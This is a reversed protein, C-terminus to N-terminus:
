GQMLRRCARALDNLTSCPVMPCIQSMLDVSHIYGWKQQPIPNLWLVKGARSKATELARIARPLDITKTDSLILLTTAPGLAPPRMACLHELATGLDTGKGFLGTDRVYGRFSEMDQLAFTDVEQVKESFLFTRSSESVDAMSKIFRLAFESFQLMSGSVDCLLVLRRRRKHRRRFSLRCLAGGTELGKRITRKFDLKGSHGSRQRRRSLEANIQQAIQSILAAARPIEADQFRSIDRYLLAMDPDVERGELAADEMLMQQELLYRLFVSRIFGDYLKPSRQRPAESKELFQRLHEKKEEALHVYAERLDEELDIPQGGVQLEEEAQARRQAMERAEEEAKARRALQQEVGLFFNDFVRDFILQEQHSKAYVASLAARVAERKDLPLEELIRCADATEQLGVALGEQRLTASFATLKEVYVSCDM